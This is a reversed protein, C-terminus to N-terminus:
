RAIQNPRPLPGPSSCQISRGPQKLLATICTIVNTLVPRTTKLVGAKSLEGCVFESAESPVTFGRQTAGSFLLSINLSLKLLIGAVGQQALCYAVAVPALEKIAKGSRTNIERADDPAKTTLAIVMLGFGAKNAAACRKTHQELRELPALSPPQMWFHLLINDISVFVYEDCQDHILVGPPVKDASLIAAAPSM